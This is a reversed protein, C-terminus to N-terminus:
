AAPGDEEELRRRLLSATGAAAARAAREDSLPVGRQAALDVLQQREEDERALKFFLWGLLFVTFVSEEIMMIGGALNQDALPKIGAAADRAQYYGYFVTQSWIFVNALAAGALRVVVVYGLQAANGFWRPKPLPGLLALWLLVGCWFFAAHQISHLLDHRLAAQYLVPLHWVYLNVVWAGMAVLPNTLVRLRQVAALSLVPQLVPGTLGLVVLLAALDGIVLHQAMHAALVDDALSDVPPCVALAALLVGAAFSEQRWAAVPRGQGSLTRTRRLYAGGYIAMAILPPLFEGLYSSTATSLM